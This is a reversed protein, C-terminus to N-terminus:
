NKIWIDISIILLYKYMKKKNKYIQKFAFFLKHYFTILANYFPLIDRFQIKYLDNFIQIFLIKKSYINM